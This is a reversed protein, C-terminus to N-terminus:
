LCFSIEIGCGLSVGAVVWRCGLSLGAIGERCRRIDFEDDKACL